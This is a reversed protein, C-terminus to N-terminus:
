MQKGASCIYVCAHQVHLCARTNSGHEQLPDGEGLLGRRPGTGVGWLRRRIGGGAPWARFECSWLLRAATLELIPSRGGFIPRRRQTPLGGNHSRLHCCSPQIGPNTIFDSAARVFESFQYQMGGTKAFDDVNCTGGSCGTWRKLQLPNDHRPM